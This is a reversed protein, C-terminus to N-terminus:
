EVILVNKGSTSAYWERYAALEARQLDLWAQGFRACSRMETPTFDGWKKYTFRMDTTDEIFGLVDFDEFTPMVYALDEKTIDAPHGARLRNAIDRTPGYFFQDFLEEVEKRRRIECDLAGLWDPPDLSSYVPEPRGRYMVFQTPEM